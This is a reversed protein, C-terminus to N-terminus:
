TRQKKRQVRFGLDGTCAALCTSGVCVTIHCVVIQVVTITVEVRKKFVRRISFACQSSDESIGGGKGARLFRIRM